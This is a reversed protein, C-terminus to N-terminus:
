QRGIVIFFVAAVVQTVFILLRQMFYNVSSILDALYQEKTGRVPPNERKCTSHVENAM